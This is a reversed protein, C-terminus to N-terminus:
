SVCAVGKRAACGLRRVREMVGDAQFGSVSLEVLPVERMEGPLCGRQSGGRGKQVGWLLEAGVTAMRPLM